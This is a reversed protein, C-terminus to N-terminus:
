RKRLRKANDTVRRHYPTLAVSAMRTFAQAMGVADGRLLSRTYLTGACVAMAQMSERAARIKEDVMRHMERQGAATPNVVGAAMRQSRQGIVEASSWLMQSTRMGLDFWTALSGPHIINRRRPM